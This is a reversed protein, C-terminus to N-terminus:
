MNVHVGGGLKSMEVEEDALSKIIRQLLSSEDDMDLCDEFANNLQAERRHKSEMEFLKQLRVSDKIGIAHQVTFSTVGSNCTEVHIWERPKQCLGYGM